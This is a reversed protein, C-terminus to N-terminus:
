IVEPYRGNEWNFNILNGQIVVGNVPWDNKESYLYRYVYDSWFTNTNQVGDILAKIALGQVRHALFNALHYFWDVKAPNIENSNLDSSGDHLIACRYTYMEEIARVWKKADPNSIEKAYPQLTSDERIKKSDAGRPAAVILSFRRVLSGQDCEGDLLMCELGVWMFAFRHTAHRSSFSEREWEISRFLREGLEPLQSRIAASLFWDWFDNEIAKVIAPGSLQNPRKIPNWTQGSRIVGIATGTRRDWNLFRARASFYKRNFIALAMDAFILVDRVTEISSDVIPMLLLIPDRLSIDYQASFEFSQFSENLADVFGDVGGAEFNSQRVLYMDPAQGLPIVPTTILGTIAFAVWSDHVSLNITQM